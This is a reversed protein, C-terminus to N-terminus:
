NIKCHKGLWDRGFLSVNTSDTVIVPLTGCYNNIKVYVKAEGVVRVRGGTYITLTTKCSHLIAGPIRGIHDISLIAVAAGADLEM